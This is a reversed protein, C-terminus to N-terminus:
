GRRRAVVLGGLVLMILGSPEPTIGFKTFAYVPLDFEGGAGRTVLYLESLPNQPNNATWEDQLLVEPFEGWQTFSVSMTDGSRALGVLYTTDTMPHGTGSDEIYTTGMDDRSGYALVPARMYIDGVMATVYNAPGGDPNEFDFGPETLYISMSNGIWDCTFQVVLSFDGPYDGVTKWAGIVGGSYPVGDMMFAPRESDYYAYMDDSVNFEPDPDVFANWDWDARVVASQAALLVVAAVLSRTLFRKM